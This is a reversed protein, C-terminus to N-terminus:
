KTHPFVENFLKVLEKTVFQIGDDNPYKTCLYEIFQRLTLWFGYIAPDSIAAIISMTMIKRIKPSRYKRALKGSM